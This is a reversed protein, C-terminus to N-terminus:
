EFEDMYVMVAMLRQDQSVFCMGAMSRILAIWMKSKSLVKNALGWGLGFRHVGCVMPWSVLGSTNALPPQHCSGVTSAEVPLPMSTSSFSPQCPQHFSFTTPSARRLMSRLSTKVTRRLPRESFLNGSRISRIMFLLPKSKSRTQKFGATVGLLTWTLDVMCYLDSDSLLM